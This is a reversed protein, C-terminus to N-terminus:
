AVAAGRGAARAARRALVAPLRGDLVDARIRAAVRAFGDPGPHIENLWASDPGVTNRVDAHLFDLPHEGELARLLANYDDILARVVARQLAPDDVGRDRMAPLLWPGVFVVGNYAARAGTVPLYDYGHGVVPAHPGVAAITARLHGGLEGLKARWADARVYARPDARGAAPVEAAPRLVEWVWREAPDQVSPEFLDNGGASLLVAAPREGRVWQVLPGLSRPAAVQRLTDGSSEFRLVAYAGTAVLHDVVNRHQPYDFWSDGESVLRARGARRDRRYREWREQALDAGPPM